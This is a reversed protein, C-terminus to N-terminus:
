IIAPEDRDLREREKEGDLVECHHDDAAHAREEARQEPCGEDRDKRVDDLTCQQRQRSRLAEGAKQKRHIVGREPEDHNEKEDELREPENSDPMACLVIEQEPWVLM